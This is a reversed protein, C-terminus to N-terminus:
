PRSRARPNSLNTGHRSNSGLTKDCRIKQSGGPLGCKELYESFINGLVEQTVGLDVCHMVGICVKDLTFGPCSFLPSVTSIALRQAMFLAGPKYRSTRWTAGESFDWYIYSQVELLYTQQEM